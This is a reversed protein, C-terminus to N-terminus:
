VKKELRNLDVSVSQDIFICIFYNFKADQETIFLYEIPCQHVKEFKQQKQQIENGTMPVLTFYYFDGAPSSINFQFRVSFM